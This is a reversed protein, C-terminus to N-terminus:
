ASYEMDLLEGPAFALRSYALASEFASQFDLATFAYRETAGNTLLFRFTYKM